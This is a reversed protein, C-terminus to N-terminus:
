YGLEARARIGGCDALARALERVPWKLSRDACVYPTIDRALRAAMPRPIDLLEAAEDISV